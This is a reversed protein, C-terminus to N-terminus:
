KKQATTFPKTNSPKTAWVNMTLIYFYLQNQYMKTKYGTAKSFENMRPSKKMIKKITM